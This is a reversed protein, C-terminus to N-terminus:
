GADTSSSSPVHPITWGRQKAESAALEARAKMAELLARLYVVESKAHEVRTEARETVRRLEDFFPIPADLGMGPSSWREIAAAVTFAAYATDEGGMSDGSGSEHQAMFGTQGPVECVMWRGSSYGFCPLSMSAEVVMNEDIWTARNWPFDRESVM